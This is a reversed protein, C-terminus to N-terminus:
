ANIYHIFSNFRLIAAAILYLEYKAVENGSLVVAEHDATTAPM